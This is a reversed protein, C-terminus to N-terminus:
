HGEPYISPDLEHFTQVPTGKGTRLTVIAGDLERDDYLHVHGSNDIFLIWEKTDPEIWGQWFQQKEPYDKYRHVQINEM